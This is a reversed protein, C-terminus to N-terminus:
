RSRSVDGNSVAWVNKRFFTSTRASCSQAHGVPALRAASLALGVSGTRQCIQSCRWPSVSVPASWGSFGSSQQSTAHLLELLRVQSASVTGIMWFIWFVTWIGCACNMGNHHMVSAHSESTCFVTSIECTWYMAFITSTVTTIRCLECLELM